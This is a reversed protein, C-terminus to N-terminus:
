VGEERRLRGSGADFRRVGWVGVVDLEAVESGEVGTLWLPALAVV